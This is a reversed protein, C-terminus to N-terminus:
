YTFRVGAYTPDEPPFNNGYAFGTIVSLHFPLDGFNNLLGTSIGSSDQIMARDFVRWLIFFTFTYFLIYGTMVLDPRAIFRQITKSARRLDILLRELHAPRALLLIPLLCILTALLVTVPTLGLLMALVFGILSLVTIGLSAGACVRAGLPSTDDYLYTAITGSLVVLSVLTISAIM